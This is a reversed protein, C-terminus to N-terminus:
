NANKSKYTKEREKITSSKALSNKYYSCSSPSTSHKLSRTGENPANLSIRPDDDM